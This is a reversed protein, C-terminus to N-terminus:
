GNTSTVQKSQWSVHTMPYFTAEPDSGPWVDLHGQVSRSDGITGQAVRAMRWHLLSWSWSRPTRLRGPPMVLLSLPILFHAPHLLPPFCPSLLLSTPVTPGPSTPCKGNAAPLGAGPHSLTSKPTVELRCYGSCARGMLSSSCGTPQGPCLRSRLCIPLLLFPIHSVDFPFLSVSCCILIFGGHPASAAAALGAILGLAKNRCTASCSSSSPPTM